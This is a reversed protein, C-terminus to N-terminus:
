GMKWKKKGRRSSVVCVPACHRGKGGLVRWLGTNVGSQSEKDKISDKCDFKTPKVANTIM